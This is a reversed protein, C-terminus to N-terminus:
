FQVHVDETEDGRVRVTVERDTSLSRVGLRTPQELPIRWPGSGADGRRLERLQGDEVVVEGVTGPAFAIVVTVARRSPLASGFLPDNDADLGNVVEPRQLHNAARAILPTNIEIYHKLRSARVGGTAEAAGGKLAAMLARTFHGRVDEGGPETGTQAEYAANMFETAYAVFSRSSPADDGPMPLEITPPLAGARIERVRCCDMLFVVEAFLGCGMALRLYGDSDLAMTRRVKSWPALCLDAGLNNRGLGHGSFYLYFRRQLPPVASARARAMLNELADDIDNHIPRSPSEESLVLAVDDQAVGGGDPAVLWTHFEEADKRAGKLSRFRPYHDIGVVLAFHGPNATM